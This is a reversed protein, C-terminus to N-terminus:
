GIPIYDIRGKSFKNWSPFDYTSSPNSFKGYRGPRVSPSPNTLTWTSICSWHWQYSALPIPVTKFGAKAPPEYMLWTRFTDTAESHWALRSVSDNIALSYAQWPSDVGRASADPVQWDSAFPYPAGADLAEEGFHINRWMRYAGTPATPSLDRRFERKATILQCFFGRGALPFPGPKTIEISHWVQGNTSESNGHFGFGAVGDFIAHGVEGTDVDFRGTPRYVKFVKSVSRCGIVQVGGQTSPLLVDFSVEVVDSGDKNCYFKAEFGNLDSSEFKVKEGRTQSYQFDKFPDLDAPLLWVHSNERVGFDGAVQLIMAAEPSAQIGLSAKMQQGAIVGISRPEFFDTTGEM